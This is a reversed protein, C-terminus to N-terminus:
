VREGFCAGCVAGSIVKTLAEERTIKQERALWNPNVVQYAPVVCRPLEDKCIICTTM